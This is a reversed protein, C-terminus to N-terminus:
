CTWLDQERLIGPVVNLQDDAICISCVGNGLEGGESAAPQGKGIQFTEVAAVTQPVPGNVIRILDRPEAPLLHRDDTWPAGGRLRRAHVEVLIGYASKCFSLVVQDARGDVEKGMLVDAQAKIM